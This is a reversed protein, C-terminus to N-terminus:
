RLRQGAGGWARGEEGASGLLRGPVCLWHGTYLNVLVVMTRLILGLRQLVQLPQDGAGGLEQQEERDALVVPQVHRSDKLGVDVNLQQDRGRETAGGDDLLEACREDLLLEVQLGGDLGETGDESVAGRGEEAGCVNEDKLAGVGELPGEFV